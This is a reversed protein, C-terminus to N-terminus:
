QITSRLQLTSMSEMKPESPEGKIKPAFPRPPPEAEPPPEEVMELGGDEKEEGNAPPQPFVSMRSIDPFVPGVRDRLPRNGRASFSATQQPTDALSLTVPHGDQRVVLKERTLEEVQFKKAPGFSEGVAVIFVEGNVGVFVKTVGDKELSGLYTFRAAASVTPGGTAASPFAPPPPFGVVRVPTEPKAPVAVPIDTTLRFIDRSPATFAEVTRELLDLRLRPGEEAVAAESAAPKGPLSRSRVPPKAPVREQRPMAWWAYALSLGFLLALGGLLWTKRNM